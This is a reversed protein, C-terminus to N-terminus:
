NERLRDSADVTMWFPEDDENDPMIGSAVNEWFSTHRRQFEDGPVPDWESEPGIGESRLGGLNWLAMLRNEAPTM